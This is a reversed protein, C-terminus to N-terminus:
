GHAAGKNCLVVKSPSGFQSISAKDTEKQSKKAPENVPKFTGNCEAPKPPFYACGVLLLFLVLVGCSKM